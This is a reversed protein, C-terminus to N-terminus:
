NVQKIFPKGSLFKERGLQEVLRNAYSQQSEPGVLVRFFENNAISYTEITSKFGSAYLERSLKEASERSKSTTVQVYWGPAFVTKTVPKALPTPTPSPTVLPTAIPTPSPTPKLIQPAITPFPTSTAVPKAGVQVPILTPEPLIAGAEVKQIEQNPIVQTIAPEIIIEKAALSQLDLEEQPSASPEILVEQQKKFDEELEALDPEVVPSPSPTPTVPAVAEAGKVVVPEPAAVPPQEIVKAYLQNLDEDALEQPADEFVSLRPTNKIAKTLADDYGVAHGARFGFFYALFLAMVVCVLLLAFEWAKLNLKWSNDQM